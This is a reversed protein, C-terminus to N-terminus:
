LVEVAVKNSQGVVGPLFQGYVQFGMAGGSFGAPVKRTTTYRGEPGFVGVSIVPAGFGVAGLGAPQTVPSLIMACRSGPVGGSTTLTLVDGAAAVTANATLALEQLDFLLAAGSSFGVVNAFPVGVLCTSESLAVSFGLSGNGVGPSSVLQQLPLYASGGDRFIHAKNAVPEGVALLPGDASLSFGFQGNPSQPGAGFNQSLQWQSGDFRYEYVSGSRVFAGDDFPAGVTVVDGSIAVSYGFEDNSSPDNAVLKQEEIWHSGDFRFVYAAGAQNLAGNLDTKSAGIVATLGDASMAIANGFRDFIATDSGTFVQTQQWSSGDFEFAVVVPSAFVGTSTTQGHAGVLMREGRIAASAGFSRVSGAGLVPAQEAWGEGQSVFPTFQGHGSCFETFDQTPDGVVARGGEIALVSGFACSGILPSVAKQAETWVGDIKRFFYAAEDGTFPSAVSSFLLEDGDFAVAEASRHGAGVDSGVLVTSETFTTQASLEADLGISVGLCVVVLVWRIVSM